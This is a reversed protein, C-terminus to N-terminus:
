ETQGFYKCFGLCEGNTGNAWNNNNPNGDTNTNTFNNSNGANPSREWWWNLDGV